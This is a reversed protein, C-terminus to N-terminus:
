GPTHGGKGRSSEPQPPTTSTPRPRPRGRISHSIPAPPALGGREAVFVVKGAQIVLSPTRVAGISDLPNTKLLVLDARKGPAISGLQDDRGFWRAPNITAAQLVKAPAVGNAVLVAMEEDAGTPDIGDQGVLLTVGASAVTRAITSAGDWMGGYFRALQDASAGPRKPPDRRWEDLVRLTPTFVAGRERWRQAITTLRDLDLSERGLPIVGFAFTGRASDTLAPAHMVSDLSRALDTRLAAQWPAMAHEVSTVGLALATDVPVSQFLPAGPDLVVRLSHQKAQALLRRLLNLDWKGFAKIHTGGAAAVSSVLSDVQEPADMPVTFGPLVKNRDAWYMPSHEAMPGAFFIEPGLLEGSAVRNHMRAMVDLPGGVDRVYLIGHQVFQKLVSAVSDPGGLTVFALHVHSDWLGPLLYGGNGEIRKASTPADARGIARIVGDAVVVNTLDSFRGQVADFVHVSKLVLDARSEQCAGAAPALIGPCAVSAAARDQIRYAALDARLDADLRTALAGFQASDDFLARATTAVHHVHRPLQDASGIGQRATPRLTVPESPKVPTRPSACAFALLASPVVGRGLMSRRGVRPDIIM